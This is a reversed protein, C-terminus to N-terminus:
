LVFYMKSDLKEYEEEDYYDLEIDAFGSAIYSRVRFHGQFLRNGSRMGIPPLKVDSKIGNLCDILRLYDRTAIRISSGRVIRDHHCFENMSILADYSDLCLDHIPQNKNAGVNAEISKINNKIRNHLKDHEWEGSVVLGHLIKLCSEITVPPMVSMVWKINKGKYNCVDGVHIRKNALWPAFYVVLRGHRHGKIAKAPIFGYDEAIGAIIENDVPDIEFIAENCHKFLDAIAEKYRLEGVQKRVHHLMNLSMVVDYKKDFFWDGGFKRGVFKCNSERFDKLKNCTEIAPADADFGVVEKAGTEEAKFSFYGNFCGIDCVSKNYFSIGSNRINEWTTLSKVRGEKIVDSNIEIRQYSPDCSTKNVLSTIEEKHTDSLKTPQKKPKTLLARIITVRGSRRNLIEKHYEDFGANKFDNVEWGSKHTQAEDANEGWVDETQKFFGNPTYVAVCKRAVMISYHLAKIGDRKDLHELSDFWLVADFSNPVIHRELQTADAVIYPLNSNKVAKDVYGRVIDIGLYTYSKFLDSHRGIGCGIDLISKVGLKNFKEIFWKM